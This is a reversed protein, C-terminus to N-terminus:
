LPRAPDGKLTLGSKKFGYYVVSGAAIKCHNHLHVHPLVSAQSGFFNEDGMRVHGTIDTQPSLVNFDGLIADHGVTTGSNLLSGKGISIDCSLVTQPCLISGEGISCRDGVIASPHILTAINGQLSSIEAYIKRRVSPTGNAILFHHTPGVKDPSFPGVYLRALPHREAFTNTSAVFGGFVGGESIALWDQLWQYCERAFGGAGYIFYKEQM